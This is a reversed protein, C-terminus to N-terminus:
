AKSDYWNQCGQGKEPRTVQVVVRQEDVALSSCLPRDLLALSLWLTIAVEPLPYEGVDLPFVDHDLPRVSTDCQLRGWMELYTWM